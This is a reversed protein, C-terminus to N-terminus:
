APTINLIDLAEIEEAAVRAAESLVRNESEKWQELIQTKFDKGFSQLQEQCLKELRTESFLQRRLFGPVPLLFVKDVVWSDLKFVKMLVLGSVGIITATLPAGSAALAALGPAAVMTAMEANNRDQQLTSNSLEDAMRAIFQDMELALWTQELREPVIPIGKEHFWRKLEKRCNEVINRGMRGMSTDLLERIREEEEVMAKAIGEMLKHLTGGKERYNRFEPMLIMDGLFSELDHLLTESGRILTQQIAERRIREEMFTPLEEKLATRGERLHEALVHYQALGKAIDAYPEDGMLINAREGLTQRVLLRVFPWASSGGTLLVQPMDAFPAQQDHRADKLTTHLIDEFWSILDVRKGQLLGQGRESLGAREGHESLSALIDASAKYSGAYQLFEAWTFDEIYASCEYVRRGDFHSWRARVTVSQELDHDMASSFEEKARRCAVWHVYYENGEGRLRLELEPNRKLLIQYFLDDFLRGGYLMDGFKGVVDARRLVALDCTGGGFDVTLVGRAAVSPPLAGTAIYHLLAGVPERLFQANEWGSEHLCQRLIQQYHNEAQSPIGVLLRKEPEVRQRLLRLFDMMWARAHDYVAIDPKFQGRLEYDRREVDGAEGFEYEAAAGILFPEGRKYLVLTPVAGGLAPNQWGEPKIVTVRTTANAINRDQSDCTTICTNSTGLDMATIRM